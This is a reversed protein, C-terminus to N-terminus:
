SAGALTFTQLMSRFLSLYDTNDSQPWAISFTFSQEGALYLVQYLTRPRAGPAPASASTSGDATVYTVARLLEGKGGGVNVTGVRELDQIHATKYQAVTSQVMRELTTGPLVKDMLVAFTASDVTYFDGIGGPTAIESGAM